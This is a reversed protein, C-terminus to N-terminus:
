LLLGKEEFHADMAEEYIVDWPRDDKPLSSPDIGFGRYLDDVAKWGRALRPDVTDLDLPGGESVDILHSRPRDSLADRAEVYDRAGRAVKELAMRVLETVSSGMLELVEEARRKVEADVRVNLQVMQPQAIAM